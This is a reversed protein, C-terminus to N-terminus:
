KSLYVAKKVAELRGELYLAIFYVGAGRGRPNWTFRSIGGSVVEDVLIEELQGIANYVKLTAMTEETLNLDLRVTSFFPNPTTATLAFSKRERAGYVSNVQGPTGGAPISSAWHLPEANDLDYHRLELTPGAGDAEPPWPNRDGYTLSDVLLGYRDFLRVLEGSNRLGFDFDGICPIGSLSELAAGDQCVVLFGRPQIGTRDPLVFSHRDNGDQLYWGSLDVFADTPNYLEVWDGTDHEDASHYNIENILISPMTLNVSSYNGNVRAAMVSLTPSLLKITDGLSVDFYLNGFVPSNPFLNEAADRNSSLILRAGPAIKTKPPFMFRNFYEGAGFSCYSLDLNAESSNNVAIFIENRLNYVDGIRLRRYDEIGVHNVNLAFTKTARYNIYYLGNRPYRYDGAQFSYPVLGTYNKPLELRNGYVLDGALLDDHQGDDFLTLKEVTIPEGWTEYSSLDTVYEVVVAQPRPSTARFVVGRDDGYPSPFPNSCYLNTLPSKEFFTFDTLFSRRAALFGKLRAVEMDFEANTGIKARDLYVDSRILEYTLDIQAEVADFGDEIVFNVERWFSERWREHEMFRQFLLHYKLYKSQFIREYYSRYEGTWHNGFSDDQDWPFIRHLNERPNFYLLTNKTLAGFSSISYAVAFFRLVNEIDLIVPAREEFDEYSLYFLQNLLRELDSYDSEDGVKKNWTARYSDYDLMPATNGGHDESKYLHGTEYGYRRLFDRNPEEVQVFVGMYQDNVTLNVHRTNPAPHGIFQYLNMALSNRMLSIDRYEASLNLERVGLPNSRDDFWVKWSKKPLTRATAGRFRVDCKVTWGAFSFQAPYRVDSKPSRYLADLAAPDITLRYVPLKLQREQPHLPAVYFSLLACVLVLRGRFSFNKILLFRKRCPRDPHGGRQIEM